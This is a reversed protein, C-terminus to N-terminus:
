GDGTRGGAGHAFGLCAFFGSAWAAAGVAMVIALVGHGCGASESSGFRQKEGGEANPFQFLANALLAIKRDRRTSANCRGLPMPKWGIIKKAGSAPM